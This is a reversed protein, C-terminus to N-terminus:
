WVNMGNWWMNITFMAEDQQSYFVQCTM